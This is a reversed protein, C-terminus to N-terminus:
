AGPYLVPLRDAADYGFIVASQSVSYGLPGFHQHPATGPAHVHLDPHAAVTHVPPGPAAVPVGAAREAKAVQPSPVPAPQIGRYTPLPAAAPTAASSGCGTLAGLSRAGLLPVALARVSARM